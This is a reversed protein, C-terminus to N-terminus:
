FINFFILSFILAFAFSTLSQVSKRALLSSFKINCVSLFTHSQLIVSLGGFSVAATATAVSLFPLPIAAAQMSGRTVEVAGYIVSLLTNATVPSLTSLMLDPLGTLAIADILMNGIVIYGGVALMALTSSSISQRVADDTDAVALRMVNGGDKRKGRFILGTVFAGAYHAAMILIGCTIDHFVASGMTGLMFVPGSTSTFSSIRKAQETDIIGKKYLEAITAAGIPYGSLLSLLLVYAGEPAANFLVRVPKAGMSSVAASAGVATLLTSCFFFPFIAPLVSTAFLLLGKSASQLFYDPKAVLLVMFLAVALSPLAKKVSFQIHRLARNYRARVKASFPTFPASLRRKLRDAAASVLLSKRGDATSSGVPSLFFAGM